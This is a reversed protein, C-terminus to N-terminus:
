SPRAIIVLGILVLCAGFARKLFLLREAEIEIQVGLFWELAWALFLSGIALFPAMILFTESDFYQNLSLKQIWAREILGLVGSISVLALSTGRAVGFDLAFLYTLAPVLLPSRRHRVPQESRWNWRRGWCQRCLALVTDDHM